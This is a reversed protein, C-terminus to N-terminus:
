FHIENNLKKLEFSPLACDWQEKCGKEVSTYM